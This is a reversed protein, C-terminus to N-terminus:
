STPSAVRTVSPAKKMKQRLRDLLFWEKEVEDYYEWSTWGNVSGQGVAKAAYSPNDYKNGELWIYGGRVQAEFVQAKYKTRLKTGNPIKGGRCYLFGDHDNAPLNAIVKPTVDEHKVNWPRLAAAQEATATILHYPTGDLGFPTLDKVDAGLEKLRRVADKHLCVVRM